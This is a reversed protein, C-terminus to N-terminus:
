QAAVTLEQLVNACHICLSTGENDPVVARREYSCLTTVTNDGHRAVVLHWVPAEHKAITARRNVNVEEPDTSPDGTCRSAGRYGTAAACTRNSTM